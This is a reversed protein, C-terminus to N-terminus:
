AKMNEKKPLGRGDFNEGFNRIVVRSHRKVTLNSAQRSNLKVNNNM